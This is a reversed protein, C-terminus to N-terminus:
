LIENVKSCAKFTRDKSNHWKPSASKKELSKKNVAKLSLKFKKFFINNKKNLQHFSFSSLNM